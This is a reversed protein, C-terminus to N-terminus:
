KKLKLRFDSPEIAPFYKVTGDEFVRPKLLGAKELRAVMEAFETNRNLMIKNYKTKIQKYPDNNYLQVRMIRHM